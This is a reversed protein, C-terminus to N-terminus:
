IIKKNYFENILFLLKSELDDKFKKYGVLAEHKIDLNFCRTQFYIVEGTIAEYQSFSQIANIKFRYDIYFTAVNYPLYIKETM